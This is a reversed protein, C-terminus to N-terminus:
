IEGYTINKVVKNNDLIKFENPYPVAEFPIPTEDIRNNEALYRMHVKEYTDGKSLWFYDEM